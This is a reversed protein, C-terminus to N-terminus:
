RLLENAWASSDSFLGAHGQKPDSPDGHAPFIQHQNPVGNADLKPGLVNPDKDWRSGASPAFVLAQRRVGDVTWTVRRPEAGFAALSVTLLILILISRVLGM